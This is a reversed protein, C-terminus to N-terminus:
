HAAPDLDIVLVRPAGSLDKEVTLRGKPLARRALDNVADAQGWGFEVAMMAGPALRAPAEAFITRHAGLGDAGAFLARGDEYDRVERPLAGRDGTRIYPPNSVIIDYPSGAGGFWDGIKAAGRSALALRQLNRSTLAVAAPNIDVGLGNALPFAALLACLLAGSGCGLDLIRYASGANRRRVIADILTESDSRPVLIGPTVEIELSWFERRGVIHAVPEEEARRAIMADLVGTEAATLRRAGDRILAGDDLGLGAKAIVRADLMPTASLTLRAAAARLYHDLTLAAAERAQRM